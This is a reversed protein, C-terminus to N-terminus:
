QSLDIYWLVTDEKGSRKSFNNEIKRTFFLQRCLEGGPVESSCATLRLWGHPVSPAAQPMFESYIFVFWGFAKGEEDEWGWCGSGDCSSELRGKRGSGCM